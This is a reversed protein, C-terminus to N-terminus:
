QKNRRMEEIKQNISRVEARIMLYSTIWTVFYTFAINALIFLLTWLGGKQFYCLWLFPLYFVATVAFHLLCKIPFNWREVSFIIGAEAFLVGVCACLLNQVAFASATNGFLAMLQPIAVVAGNGHAYSILVTILNGITTGVGLGIWFRGLVHYKKM